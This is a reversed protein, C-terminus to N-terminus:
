RSLERIIAPYRLVVKGFFLLIQLMKSRETLMQIQWTEALIQLKNVSSLGGETFSGAIFPANVFNVAGSELLVKLFYSDALLPFRRSYLGFRSHLSTKFLMGVSHATPFAKTPSIWKKEPYFGGVIKNGREVQALVVDTNAVHHTHEDYQRLAEDRFTDDAGAVVYYHGRARSIGKNIAHYLGFDQESSFDVWKSQEAFEALLRSTSDTSAGDVVIWEFSSFSERNRSLSNYLNGITLEVNKTATIVSIRPTQATM